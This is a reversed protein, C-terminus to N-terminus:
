KGRWKNTRPLKLLLCGSSLPFLPPHQKKTVLGHGVKAVGHVTARWAGRGMPDGLFYQLPNGNGRGPSRGSGPISGLDGSHAPPNKVVSDGPFDLLPHICVASCLCPLVAPTEGGGWVWVQEEAPLDLGRHGSGPAPPGWPRQTGPSKQHCQLTKLPQAPPRPSPQRIGHKRGRGLRPAKAAVGWCVLNDYPNSWM